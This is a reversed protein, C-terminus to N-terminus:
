SVFYSWVSGIQDIWEGLYAAHDILKLMLAMDILGFTYPLKQGSLKKLWDIRRKRSDVKKQSKIWRKRLREKADFLRLLEIQQHYDTPRGFTVEDTKCRSEHENFQTNSLEYASKIRNHRWAALKHLVIMLACVLGYILAM